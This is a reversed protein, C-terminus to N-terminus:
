PLKFPQLVTGAPTAEVKARLPSSEVKTYDAPIQPPKGKPRSLPSDVPDYLLTVVYEGAPAGDYADYTTLKFKGELDTTASPRLSDPGGDVPTLMVFVNVAPKGGILLQGEAPYVPTRGKGGCGALVALGALLAV